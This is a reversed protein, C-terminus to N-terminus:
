YLYHFYLQHLILQAAKNAIIINPKQTRCINIINMSLKTSFGVLNANKCSLLISNCLDSLYDSDDYCVFFSIM